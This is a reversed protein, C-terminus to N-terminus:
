TRVMRPDLLPYLLDNLLNALVVSVAVTLFAFQLVPYDLNQVSQYILSGLGPWSFVVEVQVTSSIFIGLNVWALTFTPLIANPVAHRWLVRAPSLGKARATAVYDESLVGVLSNRMNLVYTAVGGAVLAATPLVLHRAVDLVGPLVGYQAGLTQMGAVPLGGWWVSFVLILILGLWFTPVSWLGLSVGVALMDRFRGARAGATAGLVVGLFVTVLYAVSVLILTNLLARTVLGFVPEHSVYSTGWRLTVLDRLYIAYQEPLSQDLGDLKEIQAVASPDAGGARAILQTFNGPLVRFLWFNFTIIVFVTGLAQAIRTTSYRARQM